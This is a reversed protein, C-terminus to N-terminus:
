LQYHLVKASELDQKTYSKNPTAVYLLATSNVDEASLAFYNNCWGQKFHLLWHMGQVGTRSQSSEGYEGSRQKKANGHPRTLVEDPVCDFTDAILALPTSRGSSRVNSFHALLVM